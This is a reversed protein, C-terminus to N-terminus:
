AHGGGDQHAVSEHHDIRKHAQKTSEEVATLRQVFEINTERQAKQEDKIDQIGGKITGLEVLVTANQASDNQVDKAKSRAANIANIILQALPVLALVFVLGYLLTDTTM